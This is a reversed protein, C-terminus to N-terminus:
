DEERKRIPKLATQGLKVLELRRREIATMAKGLNDQIKLAVASDSIDSHVAGQSLTKRLVSTLHLLFQSYLVVGVSNSNFCTLPDKYLGVKMVECIIDLLENAAILTGEETLDFSKFQKECWKDLLEAARKFHSKKKEGVMEKLLKSLIRPEPDQRFEVSSRTLERRRPKKSKEYLDTLFDEGSRKSLM